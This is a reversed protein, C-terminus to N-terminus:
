KVGYAEKLLNILDPDMQSFGKLMEKAEDGSIYNIPRDLKQTMALLEPDKWSKEFADQLIKLRDAPIQPPGAFPRNLEVMFLMLEVLPKYENPVVNSLYPINEYGKIPKKANMLLIRYSGDQLFPMATSLSMFSADTEGRMLAMQTEAGGYGTVIKWNKAKLVKGVLLADMHATTGIGASALRVPNQSNLIDDLTKFPTNKSVALVRPDSAPSGLWSMKHLDYKVGKIGAIQAVILAREFTGFTLGDPKSVYLMNCGLIHGAGPVNKVIITSGPLYKAMYQAALRGYFDFGGGPKTTVILKITKGEYFPAANGMQASVMLLLATLSVLLFNRKM